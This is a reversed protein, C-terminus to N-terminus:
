ASAALEDSLRYRVEVLEESARHQGCMRCELEEGLPLDDRQDARALTDGYTNPCVIAYSRNLVGREVLEAVMKEADDRDLTAGEVMSARILYNITFSRLGLEAIKELAPLLPMAPTPLDDLSKIQRARARARPPGYLVESGGRGM